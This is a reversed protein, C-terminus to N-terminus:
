PDKMMAGTQAIERSLDPLGRQPLECLPAQPLRPKAQIMRHRYRGVRLIERIRVTTVAHRRALTPIDVGYIEHGHLISRDRHYNPSQVLRERRDHQKAAAEIRDLEAQLHHKLRKWIESRSERRTDWTFDTKRISGRM